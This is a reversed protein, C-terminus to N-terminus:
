IPNWARSYPTFVKFPLGSQNLVEDDIFIVHDKYTELIIGQSKLKAAVSTDRQIAYPEVDANTHVTEIKLRAALAPIENIPDGHLVILRSGAEKLKGDVETLSDYIFTMRRDDRDQLASLIVQDFVFVVYVPEGPATAASLAVHDTLRLDRRLWVLSSKSM